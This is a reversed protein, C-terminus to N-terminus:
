ATTSAGLTQLAVAASATDPGPAQEYIQLSKRAAEAAKEYRGLGRYFEALNNWVGGVDADNLRLARFYLPEAETYRGQERYLVALNNLTRAMDSEGAAGTSKWADLARLYLPEASRFKGRKYYHAALNNLSEALRRDM